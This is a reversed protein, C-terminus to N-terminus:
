RYLEWHPQHLRILSTEVLLLCLGLLPSVAPGTLAEWASSVGPVSTSLPWVLPWIPLTVVTLLCKLRCVCLYTRLNESVHDKGCLLM